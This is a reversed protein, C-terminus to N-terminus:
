LGHQQILRTAPWLQEVDMRAKVRGARDTNEGANTSIASSRRARGLMQLPVISYVISPYV